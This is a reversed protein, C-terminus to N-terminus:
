TMPTATIELLYEKGGVDFPISKRKGPSSTWNAKKTITSTKLESESSKETSTYSFMLSMSIRESDNHDAYEPKAIISGIIGVGDHDNINDIDIKHKDAYRALASEADILYTTKSSYVFPAPHNPKTVVTFRFDDWGEGTSRSKVEENLSIGLHYVKQEEAAASFSFTLLAALLAASAKMKTISM